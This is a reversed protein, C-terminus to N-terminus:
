PNPSGTVGMGSRFRLFSDKPLPKTWVDALQEDTRVKLMQFTGMEQQETLFHTKMRYHKTKKANQTGKVQAITAQNDEFMVTPYVQEQDLEQLFLRIHCIEKTAEVAANTEAETTSLAVTPQLKSLWCILGGHWLIGFGSTSRMTDFDGALDADVYTLPRQAMMEETAKAYISGEGKVCLKMTDSANTGMGNTTCCKSYLLGFERTGWLYSIVRKAAVVHETGPCAMFRSLVGVAYAIDPRTTLAIYLLGGIASMYDFEDKKIILDPPTKKLKLAPDMPTTAGRGHCTDLEFRKVLKDIAATQSLHLTGLEADRVIKMNLLWGAEGSTWPSVVFEERLKQDFWSRSDEYNKGSFMILDDVWTCIIIESDGEGM